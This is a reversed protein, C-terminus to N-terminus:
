WACDRNVFRYGQSRAILMFADLVAMVYWAGVFHVKVDEYSFTEKFRQAMSMKGDTRSLGVRTVTPVDSKPDAYLEYASFM